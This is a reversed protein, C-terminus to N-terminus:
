GWEEDTGVTAETYPRHLRDSSMARCRDTTGTAECERMVEFRESGNGALLRELHEVMRRVMGYTTDM